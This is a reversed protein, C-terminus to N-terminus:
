VWTSIALVDGVGIGSEIESMRTRVCADTVSDKTTGARKNRATLFQRAKDLTLANFCRQVQLQIEHRQASDECVDQLSYQVGKSHMEPRRFKILLGGTANMVAALSNMVAALTLLVAKVGFWSGPEPSEMIPLAAIPAQALIAVSSLRSAPM